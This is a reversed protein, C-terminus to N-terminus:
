ELSSKVPHKDRWNRQIKLALTEATKAAEPNAPTGLISLQMLWAAALVSPDDPNEPDRM